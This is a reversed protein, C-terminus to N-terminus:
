DFLSTFHFLADRHPYGKSDNIEYYIFNALTENNSLNPSKIYIFDNYEAFQLSLLSIGVYRGTLLTALEGCRRVGSIVKIINQDKLSHLQQM